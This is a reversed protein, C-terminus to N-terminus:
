ATDPNSSERPAHGRVALKAVALIGVSCNTYIIRGISCQNSYCSFLAIRREPIQLSFSMEPQTARQNVTASLPIYDRSVKQAAPTDLIIRVMRNHRNRCSQQAPHANACNASPIGLNFSCFGYPAHPRAPKNAMRAIITPRFPDM